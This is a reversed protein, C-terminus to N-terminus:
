DEKKNNILPFYIFNNQTMQSKEHREMMCVGEWGKEHIGYCPEMM